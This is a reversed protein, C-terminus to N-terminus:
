EIVRMRASLSLVIHSGVYVAAGFHRCMDDGYTFLPSRQEVLRDTLVVLLFKYGPRGGPTVNLYYFEDRGM